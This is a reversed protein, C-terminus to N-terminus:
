DVGLRKRVGRLILDEALERLESIEFDALCNPFLETGTYEHDNGEDDTWTIVLDVSAQDIKRTQGTWHWNTLWVNVNRGM